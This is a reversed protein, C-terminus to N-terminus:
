ASQSPGFQSSRCWPGDKAGVAAAHAVVEEGVSFGLVHGFRAEALQAQGLGVNALAVEGEADLRAVSRGVDLVNDLM